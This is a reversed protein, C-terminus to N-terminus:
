LTDKIQGILSSVVKLMEVVQQLYNLTEVYSDPVELDQEAYQQAGEIFNEMVNQVHKISWTDINNIARELERINATRQGNAM